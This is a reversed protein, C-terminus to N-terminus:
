MDAGLNLSQVGDVLDLDKHKFLCVVFGSVAMHFASDSDVVLGPIGFSTTKREKQDNQLARRRMKYPPEVNCRFQAFDYISSFLGTEDQIKYESPSNSVTGDKDLRHCLFKSNCKAFNEAHKHASKAVPHDIEPAALLGQSELYGFIGYCILDATRFIPTPYTHHSENNRVYHSQPKPNKSLVSSVFGGAIRKWQPMSPGFYVRDECAWRQLRVPLKSFCRAVHSSRRKQIRDQEWADALERYCDYSISRISDVGLDEGVTFKLCEGFVESSCQFAKKM